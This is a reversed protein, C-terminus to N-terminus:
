AGPSVSCPDPLALVVHGSSRSRPGVQCGQCGGRERGSPPIHARGGPHPDLEVGRCNRHRCGGGEACAGRGGADVSPGPPTGMGRYVGRPLLWGPSLLGAPCVDGTLAESVMGKIEKQAHKGKERQGRTHRSRILTFISSKKWHSSCTSFPPPLRAHSSQWTCRCPKSHACRVLPYFALSATGLWWPLELGVLSQM